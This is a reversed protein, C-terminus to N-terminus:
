SSPKSGKDPAPAPATAPAGGGGAAPTLVVNFANPYENMAGTAADVGIGIVGGLILNGLTWGQFNSPITADTDQYGAKACHIMIDEKTKSVKVTGPTVVPWSGEKSKLVCDAGGVPSTTVAISQTTGKIISACGSVAVGLAVIAIISKSKM